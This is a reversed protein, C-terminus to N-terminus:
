FDIGYHVYCSVILFIFFHIKDWLNCYMRARQWTMNHMFVTFIPALIEDFDCDFDLGSNTEIKVGLLVGFDVGLVVLEAILVVYSSMNHYTM